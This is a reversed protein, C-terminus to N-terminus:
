KHLRGATPMRPEWPMPIASRTRNSQSRHDMKTETSQLGIPIPTVTRREFSGEFSKSSTNERTPNYARSSYTRERTAIRPNGTAFSPKTNSDFHNLPKSTPAKNDALIAGTRQ